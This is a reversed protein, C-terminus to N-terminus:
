EAAAPRRGTAAKGSSRCPHNGQSGFLPFYDITQVPTPLPEPRLMTSWRRWGAKRVTSRWAIGKMRCRFNVSYSLLAGGDYKVTAAYTDEIDIEDDFICRDPRYGTYLFQPGGSELLGLHDDPM